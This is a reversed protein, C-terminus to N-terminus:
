IFDKDDSLTDIIDDWVDASSKTKKEKQKNSKAAGKAKKTKTTKSKLQVNEGEAPADEAAAAEKEAKEPKADGGEEKKDGDEKEKKEAPPLVLGEQPHRHEGRRGAYRRGYANTFGPYGVGRYGKYGRNHLDHIFLEDEEEDDAPYYGEKEKDNESEVDEFLDDAAGNQYANGQGGGGYYGYGGYGWVRRKMDRTKGLVRGMEKRYRPHSEVSAPEDFGYDGDERGPARWNRGYRGYGYGTNNGDTGNGTDNGSANGTANGSAESDGDAEKGEEKADSKEDSKEEAKDEKDDEALSQTASSSEGKDGKDSPEEDAKNEAM